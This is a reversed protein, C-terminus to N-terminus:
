GRVKVLVRYHLCQINYGGATITEIEVLAKDGKIVGNIEMNSAVYLGKADIINGAKDTIRNVLSKYKREVERELVKDLNAFRNALDHVLMPIERNYLNYEKQIKKRADLDKENSLRIRFEETKAKHIKVANEYYQKAKIRWNELFEQIAPIIIIEEEKLAKEYKEILTRLRTIENLSSKADSLKQYDDYNLNNNKSWVNMNKFNFTMVIIRQTDTLQSLLKECKKNEKELKIRVNELRRLVETKEM